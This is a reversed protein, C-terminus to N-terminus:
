SGKGFAYGLLFPIGFVAAIAVPYVWQNQEAYVLYRMPVVVKRLGAGGTLGAPIEQCAQVPRGHEIAVLQDAHCIVEPLYPDEAVNAATTLISALDGLGVPGGTRQMLRRRYNTLYGM